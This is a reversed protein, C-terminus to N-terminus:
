ITLVDRSLQLLVKDIDEMHIADEGITEDDSSNNSNDTSYNTKVVINDPQDLLILTNYIIDIIDDSLISLNIFIGNQNTSYDIDYETIINIVDIFEIGNTEIMNAIISKKDM